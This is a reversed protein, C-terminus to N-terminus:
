MADCSMRHPVDIPAFASSAWSPCVLGSKMAFIDTDLFSARSVMQHSRSARCVPITFGSSTLQSSLSAFCSSAIVFAATFVARDDGLRPATVRLLLSLLQPALVHM